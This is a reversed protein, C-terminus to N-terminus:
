RRVARGSGAFRRLVLAAVGVKLLDGAVFPLAGLAVALSASGTLVLLQAAGGAYIALMGLAPAALVRVWGAGRATVIGALAAALPYALLFGGTPGFLRAAGPLGGPAFVPLGAAGMVLYTVLAAAGVRAGLLGGVLVVALPALSLPVPTGPLPVAAQAALAVALAGALAALARPFLAPLASTASTASSM